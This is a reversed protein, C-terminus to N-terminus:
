RWFSAINGGKSVLIHHFTSFSYIHLDYHNICEIHAFALCAYFRLRWWNAINYCEFYLSYTSEKEWIQPLSYIYLNVWRMIIMIIIYLEIQMILNYISQIICYSELWWKLRSLMSFSKMICSIMRSIIIIKDQSIYSKLAFFILFYSFNWYIIKLIYLYIM